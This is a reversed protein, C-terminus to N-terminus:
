KFQPLLNVKRLTKNHNRYKINNRALSSRSTTISLAHLLQFDRALLKSTNQRYLYEITARLIIACKRPPPSSKGSKERDIKRDFNFVTNKINMNYQEDDFQHTRDEIMMISM